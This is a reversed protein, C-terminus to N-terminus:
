KGSKQVVRPIAMELLQEKEKPSLFRSAGSPLSGLLLPGIRVRKLELVDLNAREAFIRVEHKKGERLTIRFTGKRVKKVEVPRIWRNDIPAGRSLTKLIEATIEQNTKVIYEKTIGSSPHIVRNAFHGDNTVLILGESEKDLRGVTFLRESAEPFFDLVIPHKGVKTNSCIVGKPKYFLFVKKDEEGHVREGDVRIHDKGWSIQTQPVLIVQGNVTVRGAFIIEECARRSAVGAAALAKSLRKTEM